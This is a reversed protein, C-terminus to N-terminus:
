SAAVCAIPAAALSAPVTEHKLLYHKLGMLTWSDKFGFEKM